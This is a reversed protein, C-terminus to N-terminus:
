SDPNSLAHAPTPEAICAIGGLTVAHAPLVIPDDDTGSGTVPVMSDCRPCFVIRPPTGLGTRTM